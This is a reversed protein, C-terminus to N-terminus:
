KRKRVKFYHRLIGAMGILSIYGFSSFVTGVLDAFGFCSLIFAAGSLGFIVVAGHEEAKRFHEALYTGIPILSALSAGTMAIFLLAAYVYMFAPSLSEAIFLMPLDESRSEPLVAMSLLVSFAVVVLFVCGIVTGLIASKRSKAKLGVPCFVGIACFFNYSAFTIAGAAWNPILPNFAGSPHFDFGNGFNHIVTVAGVFLTLVVLVPVVASFIKVLGNIGKVALFSIILCFVFSGIYYSPGGGVLKKVLAGAGAAMVVYTGFFIVAELVGVGTLLFKNDAGVVAKDIRGSGTERVIRIITLHFLGLIAIAIFLGIIGPVGFAGFFQYLEQGSIYGAGLFGGIFTFSLALTSINKM